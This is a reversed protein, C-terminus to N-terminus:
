EEDILSEVVNSETFLSSGINKQYYDYGFIVALTFIIGLFFHLFNNSQGDQKPAESVVNINSMNEEIKDDIKSGVESVIKTCSGEVNKQLTKQLGSVLIETRNQLQAFIQKYATCLNTKSKFDGNRLFGDHLCGGYCIKFWKCKACGSEAIYEARHYPESQKIRPLIESLPEQHLNGYSFQKLGEDCFRGCPMVDGTPAIAIFNDQCNRSFMCGTSKDTVINSAIEVFNPESVIGQQDDFWLDFLEICM